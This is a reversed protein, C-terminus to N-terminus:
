MVNDPLIGVIKEPLRKEAVAPQTIVSNVITVISNHIWDFLQNFSEESADTLELVPHRSSLSQLTALDYGPVGIAWFNLKGYLTDNSDATERENIRAIVGPLKDADTPLGDSILVMFPVHSEVGMRDYLTRREKIADLAQDLALAMETIGEAVMERPQASLLPAFPIVEKVTTNFELVMLDVRSRATPNSKGAQLFRTFAKNLYEINPRDAITANMSESTDLLLICPLHPESPSAPLREVQIGFREAVQERTEAM